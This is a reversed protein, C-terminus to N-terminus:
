HFANDRERYFANKNLVRELEVSIKANGCRELLANGTLNRRDPVTCSSTQAM